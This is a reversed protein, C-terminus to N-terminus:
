HYDLTVKPMTDRASDPDGGFRSFVRFEYPAANPQSAQLCSGPVVASVKRKAANWTVELGPCKRPYAITEEENDVFYVKGVTRGKERYVAIRDWASTLPWIELALFTRPTLKALKVKFVAEKKSMSYRARRLDIGAPADGAKDKVRAADKAPAAPAAAPSTGSGAVLSILLALVLAPVLARVLAVVRIM